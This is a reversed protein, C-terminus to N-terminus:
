HHCCQGAASSQKAVGYKGTLTKAVGLFKEHTGAADATEFKALLDHQEQETFAQDAMAFLCHDEKQIHQRLMGLYREGADSFKQLAAKDGKGAAAVSDSMARICERGIVHESRM